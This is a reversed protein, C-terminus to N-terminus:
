RDKKKILEVTRQVTQTTKGEPWNKMFFAAIEAIKNVMVPREKPSASNYEKVAAGFAIYAASQSTQRDSKLAGRAAQMAVKRAQKSRGRVYEVYALYYRAQNVKKSDTKANALKLARRLMAAISEAQRNQEAELKTVEAAPTGTRRASQLQRRTKNLGVYEVMALSWAGAFSTPMLDKAGGLRKIMALAVYRYKSPGRSLDRAIALAARSHEKADKAPTGASKSAGERAIALQWRIEMGTATKKLAENQKLWKEAHDIALLYDRRSEHNLCMLQFQLAQNRVAKYFPHKSPHSRLERLIGLSKGIDGREFLCRAKWMEAYLGAIQTRYTKHIKGYAAAAQDLLETRDEKGGAVVQAEWYITSALALRAMIVDVEAAKRKKLKDKDTPAIFKPFAKFRETNIALAKQLVTRAEAVDQLAQKRHRRALKEATNPLADSLLEARSLLIRGKTSLAEPYRKHKPYRKLFGDVAALSRKLDELGHPVDRRTKARGQYILARELPINQLTSFPVGKRAELKKLVDLARGFKGAKRLKVASDFSAADEEITKQVQGEGFVVFPMALITLCATLASLAHPTRLIGTKM